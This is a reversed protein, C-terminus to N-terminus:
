TTWAFGIGFNGLLERAVLAAKDFAANGVRARMNIEDASLELKGGTVLGVDDRAVIDIRGHAARITADGDLAVARPEAAQLVALVFCAGTSATALLVLDGPGAELLCSAARRARRVSGGVRVTLQEACSMVVGLEQIAEVSVQRAATM